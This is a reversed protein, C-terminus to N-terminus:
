TLFTIMTNSFISNYCLYRLIIKTRAQTDDTSIKNGLACIDEARNSGGGELVFMKWDNQVHWTNLM